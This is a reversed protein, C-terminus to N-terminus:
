GRIANAAQVATKCGEEDKKALATEAEQIKLMADQKKFSQPMKSIEEKVKKLDGACDAFAPVSVLSLVAIAVAAIIPKKM